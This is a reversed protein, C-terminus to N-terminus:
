KAEKMLKIVEDELTKYTPVVGRSSLNKKAQEVAKRLQTRYKDTDTNTMVPDKHMGCAM